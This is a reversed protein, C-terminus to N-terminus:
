ACKRRKRAKQLDIGNCGRNVLLERATDPSRVFLRSAGTIFEHELTLPGSTNFCSSVDRAM